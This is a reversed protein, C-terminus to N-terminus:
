RMVRAIERELRRLKAEQRRTPDPRVPHRGAHPQEPVPSNDPPLGLARRLLFGIVSRDALMGARGNKAAATCPGRCLHMAEFQESGFLTGAFHSDPAPGTGATPWPACQEVPVTLLRGPGTWWLHMSELVVDSSDAWSFTGPRHERLFRRCRAFAEVAIPSGAAAAIM